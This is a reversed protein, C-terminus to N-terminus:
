FGHVSHRRSRNSYDPQVTQACLDCLIDNKGVHLADQKQVITCCGNRIEGGLKVNRFEVDPAVASVGAALTQLLEVGCATLM